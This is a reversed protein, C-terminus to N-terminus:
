LLVHTKVSEQSSDDRTADETAQAEHDNNINMQSM